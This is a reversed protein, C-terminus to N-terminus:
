SATSELRSESEGSVGKNLIFRGREQSARILEMGKRLCTTGDHECFGLSCRYCAPLHGKISASPGTLDGQRQSLRDCLGM